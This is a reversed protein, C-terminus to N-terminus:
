CVGIDEKSMVLTIPRRFDDDSGFKELLQMILKFSRPDGAAAKNALQRCAVEFKTM